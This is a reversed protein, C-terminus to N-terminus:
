IHILSLYLSFGIFMILVKNYEYQNSYFSYFIILMQSLGLVLSVGSLSNFITLFKSIVVSLNPNPLGTSSVNGFPSDFLNNVLALWLTVAEDERWAALQSFSHKFYILFILPLLYKLINLQKNKSKIHEKM